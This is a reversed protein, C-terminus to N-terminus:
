KRKLIRNLIKNKIDLMEKNYFFINIILSITIVMCSTKIALYIWEIYNKANINLFRILVSTILVVLIDVIFHKFFINLKRKLLNNSLYKVFYLTHFMLAVFTGIAVGIIGYKNVLVISILINLIMSTVAGNQTEKYHGAAKILRFYPVRFCQMAFAAVLLIGFLPQNYSIDTVGKTYILVFPTILIGTITFIITVVSHIIWEIFNFSNGLIKHENKALMNGWMAELGNVTTMIIQTIGYVVSFYVNYISVNELTSMVTLVAVDTNDVVVASLHQTFGNWKQKIPEEEIKVLKNICYNKKVYYCLFLPRLIYVSSTVIKIVHISFGLKMLIICLITSVLLTVWQVTNQVYGKQDANLLLQYTMGFFYQALSSISMILVLIATYFYSFGADTLMPFFVCLLGIYVIFIYAIKKFFKDSAVVIKSIENNNKEALPKYLNSQIVPGIGMELFTIFGLFQTISSVLGNTKSGYYVLIAKTMAFGCVLTILQKLLGLSANLLFKKKRSM